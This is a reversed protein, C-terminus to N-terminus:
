KFATPVSFVCQVPTLNSMKRLVSVSVLVNPQLVLVLVFPNSRFVLVLVTIICRSVM